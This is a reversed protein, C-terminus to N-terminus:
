WGLTLIEGESYMREQDKLRMWTYCDQISLLRIYWLQLPLSQWQLLRLLLAIYSAYNLLTMFQVISDSLPKLYKCCSSDRLINLVNLKKFCWNAKSQDSIEATDMSGADTNYWELPCNLRWFVAFTRTWRRFSCSWFRCLECEQFKILRTM